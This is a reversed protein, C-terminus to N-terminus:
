WGEIQGERSHKYRSEAFDELTDLQHLNKNLEARVEKVEFEWSKKAFELKRQREDFESWVSSEVEVKESDADTMLVDGGSDFAQCRSKYSFFPKEEKQNKFRGQQATELILEPLLVGSFDSSGPYAPVPTLIRKTRRSSTNAFIPNEWPKSSKQRWTDADIKRQSM